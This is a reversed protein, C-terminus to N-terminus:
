GWLVMFGAAVLRLIGALILAVRLDVWSALLPGFLAGVLIGLNLAINHLAMHAPRDDAPVREMLRNVQGGALLAYILGGLISALWFLKADWAMSLMLPYVSFLLAGILMVKRHGYRASLYTMRLSGIMMFAHFLAAGLSIEGDSLALNNVYYPPFLPVSLYQFTYFILYSFIFLGFPGKLLDLRFLKIERIRSLSRSRKRKGSIAQGDSNGPPKIEAPANVKLNIIQPVYQIRKVHYLSIFAGLMGITFVIQYNIPFIINDLIQGCILSTLTISVAILANRRGVAYGLWDPPVVGAYMANFSIALFTGPIAMLVTLLIISRIQTQIMIIMPLVIMIIYGIRHLIASNIVVSKIPWNEMLRGAPLTFFLNMVAPGATLLGIQLTTAGLRAAYIAIFSMTSGALVGFWFIDWYLHKLNSRLPESSPGAVESFLRQRIRM